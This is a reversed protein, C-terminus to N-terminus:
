GHFNLSIKDIILLFESNDPFVESLLLFCFSIKTLIFLVEDFGLFSQLFEANGCSEVGPTKTSNCYKIYHLVFCTFFLLLSYFFTLFLLSNSIYFVKCEQSSVGSPLYQIALQCGTTSSCLSSPICTGIKGQGNEANYQIKMTAVGCVESSQCTRNTVPDQIQNISQITSQM